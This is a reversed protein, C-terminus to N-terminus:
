FSMEEDNDDEEDDETCLEKKQREKTNISKQENYEGEGWDM